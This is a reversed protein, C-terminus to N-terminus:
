STPLRACSLVPLFCFAAFPQHPVASLEVTCVPDLSMKGHVCSETGGGLVPVEPQASVAAWGM